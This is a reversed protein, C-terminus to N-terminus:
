RHLLHIPQVVIKGIDRGRYRPAALATYQDNALRLALCARLQEGRHPAM